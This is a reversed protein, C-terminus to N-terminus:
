RTETLTVIVLLVSNNYCIQTGNLHFFALRKMGGRGEVIIKRGRKRRKNIKFSIRAYFIKRM